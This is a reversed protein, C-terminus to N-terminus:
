SEAIKKIAREWTTKWPGFITGTLNIKTRKVKIADVPCAENCAGCFICYNQNIKYRETKLYPKAPSVIEIVKPPCALMCTDCLKCKNWDYKVEGDFPKQMKIANKPCEKVCIGCYCCLAGDFKLQYKGPSLEVVDLAKTPCCDKCKTCVEKKEKDFPICTKEDLEFKANLKPYGKLDKINTGDIQLTLANKPCTICCLGCLTCAREDIAIFSGEAEGSVIAGVPGMAIADLPCVDACIGCGICREPQYDLHRKELEAERTLSVKGNVKKAVVIKL